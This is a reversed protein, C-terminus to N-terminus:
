NAANEKEIFKILIRYAKNIERIKKDQDIFNKNLDPHYKKVLEKYRTKILNKSIREFIEFVELSRKVEASLFKSGCSHFKIKKEQFNIKSKNFSHEFEFKISSHKAKSFPRTPRSELHDNKQFDYIESQSKGAFYNWRKNYNKVHDMCFLYMDKSGPSKPALYKGDKDCNFSDCKRNIEKHPLFDRSINSKKKM